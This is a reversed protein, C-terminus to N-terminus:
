NDVEALWRLRVQHLAVRLPLLQLLHNVGELQAHLLLVHQRPSPLSPFSLSHRAFSFSPSPPLRGHSNGSAAVVAACSHCCAADPQHQILPRPKGAPGAAAAAAERGGRRESRCRPSNSKRRWAAACAAVPVENRLRQRRAQQGLPVVHRGANQGSDVLIPNARAAPSHM